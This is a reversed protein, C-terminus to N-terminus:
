LQLYAHSRQVKRGADRIQLTDIEKVRHILEDAEKATVIKRMLVKENSVPTYVRRGKDYAPELEYYLKDTKTGPPAMKKVELVKCVGINGYIIYEGVEFM